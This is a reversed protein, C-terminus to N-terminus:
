HELLQSLKVKISGIQPEGNADVSMFELAPLLVHDVNKEELFVCFLKTSLLEGQALIDKNLAESFSIKLIINLFEFHENVINNAKEVATETTVLGSVFSRYHKELSDINQKATARDGKAINNGIEVLSNTTGSIASLVILVPETENGILSVLHHMRGPNGVSTLGFKMVKM